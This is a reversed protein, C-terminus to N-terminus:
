HTTAPQENEARDESRGRRRLRRLANGRQGLEFGGSGRDALDADVGPVDEVEVVRLLVVSEEAERVPQVDDGIGADDAPRQRELAALAERHANELLRLAQQAAVPEQVFHINPRDRPMVADDIEFDGRAICPREVRVHAEAARSADVFAAHRERFVVQETVTEPQAEGM